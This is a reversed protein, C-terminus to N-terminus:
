ACLILLKLTASSITSSILTDFCSQALYHKIIIFMYCSMYQLILFSVVVQHLIFGRVLIRKQKRQIYSFVSFGLYNLYKVTRRYGALWAFCFLCIRKPKFARDILQGQDDILGDGPSCCQVAQCAQSPHTCFHAMKVTTLSSSLKNEFSVM